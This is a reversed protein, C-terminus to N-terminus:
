WSWASQGKPIWKGHFTSKGNEFSYFDSVFRKAGCSKCVQEHQKEEGTETIDFGIDNFQIVNTSNCLGCTISRPGSM